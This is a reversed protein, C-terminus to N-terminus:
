FPTSYFLGLALPIVRVDFIFSIADKLTMLLLPFRRHSCFSFEYKGLVIMHIQFVKFFGLRWPRVSTTLDDPSTRLIERNSMDLPFSWFTASLMWWSSARCRLREESICFLARNMIFVHVGVSRQAYPVILLLLDASLRFIYSASIAFCNNCPLNRCDSLRWCRAFFRNTIWLKGLCVQMNCIRPVLKWFSYDYWCWQQKRVAHHPRYLAAPYTSRPYAKRRIWRNLSGDRHLLADCSLQTEM